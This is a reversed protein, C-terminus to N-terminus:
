SIQQGEPLRERASAGECSLVAVKAPNTFNKGAYEECLGCM